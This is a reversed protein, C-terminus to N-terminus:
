SGARTTASTGGPRQDRDGRPSARLRRSPPKVLSGHEYITPLLFMDAAALYREVDKRYGLTKVRDAMGSRRAVETPDGRGVVWLTLNGAGRRHADALGEVALDLGKIHPNRGSTCRLWRTRAPAWSPAYRSGCNPTPGSASPTTSWRSTCWGCGPTSASWPRRPPLTEVEACRTRQPRYNFREVGLTFARAARWTLRNEGPPRGNAAEHYGGLCWNVTALDVHTRFPRSPRCRTSSTSTSGGSPWPRRPTSSRGSSVCRRPPRSRRM